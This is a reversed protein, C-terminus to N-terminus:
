ATLDAVMNIAEQKSGERAAIHHLLYDSSRAGVAASAPWSNSWTADSLTTYSPRPGSTLEAM